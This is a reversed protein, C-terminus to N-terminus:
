KIEELHSLMMRKDLDAYVMLTLLSNVGLFKEM